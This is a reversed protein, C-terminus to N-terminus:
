IFHKFELMFEASTKKLHAFLSCSIIIENNILQSMIGQTLDQLKEKLLPLLFGLVHDKIDIFHVTNM